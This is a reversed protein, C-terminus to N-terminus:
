SSLLEDLSAATLIRATWEDLQAMDAAIVRERASEPIEGFRQELLTLLMGRGQALGKEIGKEMGKKIGKEMGKKIGTEHALQLGGYFDQEAMKSREYELWETETFRIRRVAELAETYPPESLEEPVDHLHVTERFFYAWKDVATEPKKGEAYKPLELFVYSLQTL